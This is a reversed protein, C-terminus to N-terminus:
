RAGPRILGLPKKRYALLPRWTISLSSGEGEQYDTGMELFYDHSYRRLLASTNFNGGSKADITQKGEIEWKENLTWRAKISAAEFLREELTAGRSYGLEFVLSESPSFGLRTRSFLTREEEMDVRGDHTIAVPWSGVDTYLTGLTDLQWTDEIGSPQETFNIAHVEVDLRRNTDPKWWRTRLGLDLERGETSDEVSDFLIPEGEREGYIIDESFTASPTLDHMFGGSVEKWFTSSLELGAMLIGRYPEQELEPDFGEDWATIRGEVFPTARVAGIGTSFPTEVRHTTDARLASRGTHEDLFVPEFRTDGPKRRLSELDVSAGYMVPLGAVSFIERSGRYFGLAPRREVETRYEDVRFKAQATFLDAGSGKRWHLFNDREEWTLFRRQFFESQVGPDSQTTFALDIWSNDGTPYRGRGRHWARFSDRESPDVRNTGRDEKDDSIGGSYLHLWFHEDDANRSKESLKLGLDFLVGREGHFAGDLDWRGSVDDPDFGFARGVGKGFSGIDSKIGAGLTTGFRATSGVGFRDVQYVDENATEFGEFGGKPDLVADGFPPLPIQVGGMFRLMNNRASVRWGGKSRPELRLDNTEVVYHPEEHSCTTLTARNARLSGDSATRLEDTRTRVVERKSGVNIEFVVESNKMWGQAEMMDLYIAEARAVRSGAETMEIDGELYVARAYRGFSKEAVSRFVNPLLDEVPLPVQIRRDIDALERDFLLSSARQRWSDAHIWMVAWEARSGTGPASTYVPAGFIIMDEADEEVPTMSAFSFSWEGTDGTARLIGRPATVLYTELDIDITASEMSLGSVKVQAPKGEIHVNQDTAYMRTGRAFANKAYHAVFGGSVDIANFGRMRGEQEGEVQVQGALKVREAQVTMGLGGVDQGILQAAGKLTIGTRDVVMEDAYAETIRESKSDALREPSIPLLVASFRVHPKRVVMRAAKYELEDGTLHFPLGADELQGECEIRGQGEPFLQARGDPHLEFRGGSGSLEIRGKHDIHVKGTAILHDGKFDRAENGTVSHAGLTGIFRGPIQLHDASLTITGTLDTLVGESVEHAEFLFSSKGLGGEAEESKIVSLSARGCRVVWSRALENLDIAAQGVLDIQNGHAHIRTARLEGRDHSLTLIAPQTDTGILEFDEPGNAVIAEAAGVGYETEIQVGDEGRLSRTLLDLDRVTGITIFEDSEDDVPTIRVGNALPVRWDEGRRSLELGGEAVFEYLVGDADPGIAITSGECLIDLAQKQNGPVSLRLRSTTVKTNGQLLLVEGSAMFTSPLNGDATSGIVGRTCSITMGDRPTSIRCAGKMEFSTAGGTGVHLPGEGELNVRMLKGSEDPVLLAVTPQEILMIESLAGTEDFSLNARQGDFQDEGREAHASGIVTGTSLRRVGQVDRLTKLKMSDGSVDVPEEGALQVSAGGEASLVLSEQDTKDARSVTLPGVPALLTVTEGETNQISVRGGEVFEFRSKAGEVRLGRGTSTLGTGEVTALDDEVSRFREQEIWGTLRPAKFTLPAIVGGLLQTVTVEFLEIKGDDLIAFDPSISMRLRGRTAEVRVSEVVTGSSDEEFTTITLGNADYFGDSLPELHESLFELNKQGTEKDFGTFDVRGSATVRIEDGEVPDQEPKPQTSDETPESDTAAATTGEGPASSAQGAAVPNQEAGSSDEAQESQPQVLPNQNADQHQKDFYLLLALGVGFVLAFILLRRM